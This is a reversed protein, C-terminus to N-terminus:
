MRRARGRHTFSRLSIAYTLNRQCDSKGRVVINYWILKASKSIAHEHTEIVNGAADCVRIVADHSRSRFKAYDVANSVANPEGYWLRGFPLADSILDVGRHDKRPRVEYLHKTMAVSM